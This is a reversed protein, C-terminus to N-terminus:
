NAQPVEITIRISNNATPTQSVQIGAPQMAIEPQIMPAPITEPILNVVPWRTELWSIVDALNRAVFAALPSAEEKDKLRVQIPTLGTRLAVELDANPKDGVYAAHELDIPGHDNILQLIMNAGPKRCGFRCTGSEVRSHPCVYVPIDAKNVGYKTIETLFEDMFKNFQEMTYKNKEEIAAQNTVIAVLWGKAQARAIARIDEPDIVIKDMTFPSSELELITTDNFDLMLLPRKTKQM